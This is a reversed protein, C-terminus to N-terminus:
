SDDIDYNGLVDVILDGYKNRPNHGCDMLAYTFSEQVSLGNKVRYYSYRFKIESWDKAIQKMGNSAEEEMESKLQKFWKAEQELNM